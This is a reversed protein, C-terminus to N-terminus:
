DAFIYKDAAYETFDFKMLCAIAYDYGIAHDWYMQKVGEKTTTDAQTSNPQIGHTM